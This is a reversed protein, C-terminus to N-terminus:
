ATSSELYHHTFRHHAWRAGADLLSGGPTQDFAPLDWGSETHTVPEHYATLRRVLASLESDDGLDHHREALGARIAEELLQGSEDSRRPALATVIDEVPAGEPEIDLPGSYLLLAVTPLAFTFPGGTDQKPWVPELLTASRRLSASWRGNRWSGDEAVSFAMRGASWWLDRMDAM